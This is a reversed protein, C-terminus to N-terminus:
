APGEITKAYERMAVDFVFAHVFLARKLEQCYDQVAIGEDKAEVASLLTWIFEIM